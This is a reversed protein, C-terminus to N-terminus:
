ARLNSGTLETIEMQAKRVHKGYKDMFKDEDPEAVEGYKRMISGWALRVLEDMEDINSRLTGDARAPMVLAPDDNGKIWKYVERRSDKWAKDMRSKWASVRQRDEKLVQAAILTRLQNQVALLEGVPPLRSGSLDLALVKEKPLLRRLKDPRKSVANLAEEVAKPAPGLSLGQARDRNCSWVLATRLARQAAGCERLLVTM